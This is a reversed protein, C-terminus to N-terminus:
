CGVVTQIASDIAEQHLIHIMQIAEAVSSWKLTVAEHPVTVM